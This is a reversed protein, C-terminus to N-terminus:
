AFLNAIGDNAVLIFTNELLLQKSHSLLASSLVTICIIDDTGKKLFM